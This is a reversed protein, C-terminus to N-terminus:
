VLPLSMHNAIISVGVLWGPVHIYRFSSQLIFVTRVNGIRVPRVCGYFSVGELTVSELRSLSLAHNLEMTVTSTCEVLSSNLDGRITISDLNEITVAQSLFHQGSELEVTVCDSPQMIEDWSALQILVDQFTECEGDELRQSCSSSVAFTTCNDQASSSCLLIALSAFILTRSAM